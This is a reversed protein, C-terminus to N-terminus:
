AGADEALSVIEDASHGGTYHSVTGDTALVIINVSPPSLVTDGFDQALARALDSDAIAYHFDFGNLDRYRALGEPSESQEVDIVVLEARAPDLTAMAAAAERQQSLCKPCWMAMTEVFVVKGEAAIDAIRFQEGTEVDTLTATAWAQEFVAGAPAPSADAPAESDMPEHSDMPAESTMVEHSAMPQASDMPEHSDMPAESTMVEHSAMPEESSMQDPTPEASAAPAPTQPAASSAGGGPSCAALALALFTV